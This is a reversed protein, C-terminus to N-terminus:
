RNPTKATLADVIVKRQWHASAVSCATAGIQELAEIHRNVEKLADLLDFPAPTVFDAKDSPKLPAPPRLITPQIQLPVYCKDGLTKGCTECKM